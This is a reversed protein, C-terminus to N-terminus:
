YIIFLLLQVVCIESPLQISSLAQTTKNTQTNVPKSGEVRVCFWYIGVMYILYLISVQESIFVINM